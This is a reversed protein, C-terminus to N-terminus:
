QACKCYRKSVRGLGSECILVGVSCRYRDLDAARFWRRDDAGILIFQESLAIVEQIVQPAALTANV